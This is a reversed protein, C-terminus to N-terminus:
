QLRLIDRYTIAVILAMLLIFGIMHIMAEHHHKVVRRGFLGEAAIFLAKGGDLAPFPVINLIALNISLIGVLRLVAVVGQSVAQATVGFIAVPGGIEGPVEGASFLRVLSRGFFEFTFDAAATAERAGAVLAKGVSLKVIATEFLAVGLPKDSQSLTVEITKIRGIDDRVEFAVAMGAHEHTFVQVAQASPFGLLQYGAKIGAQNAATNDFVQSVIVLPQQNGGLTAPDNFIPTMGIVFAIGFAGIALIYNMIVGAVVVALRVGVTKSSFARSDKVYDEEGLLKVYGGIPILNLRYRTGKITKQLLRPPFGFAFEDVKIRALKAVIFHGFEHVFILLGLVIIFVVVTLLM